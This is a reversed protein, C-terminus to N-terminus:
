RAAHIVLSIARPCTSLFLSPLIKVNLCESVGLIKDPPIGSITTNSGEIIRKSHPAFSEIYCDSFPNHMVNGVVVTFAVKGMMRKIEKSGTTNLGTIENVIAEKRAQEIAKREAETELTANQVPRAMLSDSAVTKTEQATISLTSVLFIYFLFTTRM